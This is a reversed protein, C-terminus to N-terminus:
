DMALSNRALALALVSECGSRRLLAAVVTLTWRSDVIDDVLLCPAELVNKQDVGFVGDLNGAQQFSNHMKKERQALM